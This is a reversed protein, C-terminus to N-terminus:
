LGHRRRGDCRGGHDCRRRRDSGRGHDAHVCRLAKGRNIRNGHREPRLQRLQLHRVLHLVMLHWMGGARHRSWGTDEEGGSTQKTQLNRVGHLILVRIVHTRHLVLLVLLLVMLLLL